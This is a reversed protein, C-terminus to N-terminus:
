QRDGTHSAVYRTPDPIAADAFGKARIRCSDCQGCALGLNHESDTPDYCSRTLSFDLGAAHGAHIIEAKSLRILPTHIVLWPEATEVGARTALNCTHAFSNIFDPRCDPYGSYDVANVGIHVERCERAEAMAAAMSLFILNRAPVYTIPIHSTATAHPVNAKPVAIDATLASAGIARMDITLVVHERAGLSHAIHKAAILEGKHRQGYDVSLCVCEIGERRALALTVASDLGGSLLVVASKPNTNTNFNTISNSNPHPHM